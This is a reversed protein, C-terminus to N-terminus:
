PRSDILHPYPVKNPPSVMAVSGNHYVAPIPRNSSEEIHIIQGVFISHTGYILHGVVICEYVTVGHVFLPTGRLGSRWHGELFRDEGSLDRRNSFIEITEAHNTALQNISFIRSRVIFDHASADRNVCVLMAPPDASLSCWATATLGRRKGGDITAIVAVAGPVERMRRVFCSQLAILDTQTVDINEPEIVQPTLV